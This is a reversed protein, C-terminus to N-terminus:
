RNKVAIAELMKGNTVYVLFLDDKELYEIGAVQEAALPKELVKEGNNYFLVLKKDTANHVAFIENHPSFKYYSTSVKAERNMYTRFIYKGEPSIFTLERGEMRAAVWNQGLNQDICMVFRSGPYKKPLQARKLVKGRMNCSVLEGSTGLLQLQTHEFDQKPVVFLPNKTPVNFILPFEPYSKADTKLANLTGNELLFIYADFNGVRVARAAQSFSYSFMRPSWNNLPTGYQSIVFANGLKDTALFRYNKFNNYEIVSLHQTNFYPPLSLPYGKVFRGKRDILFIKNEYSLLIQLEGNHRLDIQRVDANVKGYMKSRFLQEGSSSFLYLNNWKDQLLIDTQGSYHNKLLHLNEQANTVLPAEWLREQVPASRPPRFTVMGSHLNGGKNGSWSTWLYGFKLFYRKYKEFFPKWKPKLESFFPQWVNSPLMGLALNSPKDLEADIFDQYGKLQSLVQNKKYSELLNKIHQPNEALVLHEKYFAYYTEEWAPHWISSLLQPFNAMAISKIEFDGYKESFPLLEEPRLKLDLDFLLELLEEKQTSNFLLVQTPSDTNEEDQEFFIVEKEVLAFFDDTDFPVRKALEKYKQFKEPQKKELWSLVNDRLQEGDDFGLRVFYNAKAPILEAMTASFTPQLNHFVGELEELQEFHSGEFSIYSQQSEAGLVSPPALASLWQPLESRQNLFCSLLEGMHQPNFYIEFDKVAEGEEEQSNRATKIFSNSSEEKYQRIVEELLSSNKSLVLRDKITTINWIPTKGKDKFVIIEQGEYLRKETLFPMLQLTPTFWDGAQPFTFLPMYYVLDFDRTSHPHVSLYLPSEALTQKLFPNNQVLGDLFRFNQAFSGFDPIHSLHQIASSRELEQYLSDTYWIKLALASSAPILEEIQTTNLKKYLLFSLHIILFTIATITGIYAVWHQKSSTSTPAKFISGLTM